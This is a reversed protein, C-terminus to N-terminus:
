LSRDAWPEFYHRKGKIKKAWRGTAHAFLPFDFRPKAPKESRKSGSSHTM